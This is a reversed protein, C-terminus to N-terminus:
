SWEPWQEEFTGDPPFPLGLSDTVQWWVCLRWMKRGLSVPSQPQPGRRSCSKGAEGPALARGTGRARPHSQERSSVQIDPSPKPSSHPVTRHVGLPHLCPRPQAALARGAGPARCHLVATTSLHLPWLVTPPRQHSLKWPFGRTGQWEGRLAFSIAPAPVAMKHDQPRLATSFISSFTM